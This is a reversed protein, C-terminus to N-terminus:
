CKEKTREWFKWREAENGMQKQISDVKDMLARLYYDYNWTGQRVIRVDRGYRLPTRVSATERRVTKQRKISRTIKRPLQIHCVWCKNGWLKRSHYITIRQKWKGTEGIQPSAPPGIIENRKHVHYSNNVKWNTWSKVKYSLTAFELNRVHQVLVQIGWIIKM